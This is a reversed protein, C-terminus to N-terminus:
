AMESGQDWALSAKMIEPSCTFYEIVADATAEAHKSPLALLGAFGTMREVLTAGYSSGGRGIILDGEWHGPVRHQAADEGRERLPVM